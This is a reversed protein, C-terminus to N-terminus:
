YKGLVTWAADKLSRRRTEYLLDGTLSHINSRKKLSAFVRFQIPTRGSFKEVFKRLVLVRAARPTTGALVGWGPQLLLPQVQLRLDQSFDLLM